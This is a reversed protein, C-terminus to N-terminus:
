SCCCGQGLEACCAAGLTCLKPARSCSLPDRCRLDWCCDFCSCVFCFFCYGISCLNSCCDRFNGRHCCDGDGFSATSTGAPQIFCDLRPLSETEPLKSYGFEAALESSLSDGAFDRQWSGFKSDSRTGALRPVTGFAKFSSM